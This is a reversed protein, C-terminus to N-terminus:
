VAFTGEAKSSDDEGDVVSSQSLSTTDSTMSAIPIARYLMSGAGKALSSLQEGLKITFGSPTDPASSREDFSESPAPSLAYFDRPTTGSLPSPVDGETVAMSTMMPNARPQAQVPSDHREIGNIISAAESSGELMGAATREVTVTEVTVRYDLDEVDTLSSDSGEGAKRKGNNARKTKKTRTKRKSGYSVDNEAENESSSSDSRKRKKGTIAKRANAISSTSAM